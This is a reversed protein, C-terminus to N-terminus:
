LEMIDSTHDSFSFKFTSDINNYPTEAIKRYSQPEMTEFRSKRLISLPKVKVKTKFKNLDSRSLSEINDEPAQELTRNFIGFVEIRKRWDENNEPSQQLENESLM